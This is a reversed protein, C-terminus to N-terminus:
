IDFNLQQKSEIKFGDDDVVDLEYCIDNTCITVFIVKNDENKRNVFGQECLGTAVYKFGNEFIFTLKNGVKIEGLVKLRKGIQKQLEKQPKTKYDLYINKLRFTYKQKM